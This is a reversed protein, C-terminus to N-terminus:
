QSRRGDIDEGCVATGPPATLRVHGAGAGCGAQAASYWSVIRTGTSDDVWLVYWTAAPVANWVYTPTPNFISGSPSLLTAGGPLTGPSVTFPMGDSWPGYGSENWTQIWWQAAGRALATAPTVSCTGNGSPCGAQDATYWTKIKGTTTTSDDVWLFYWTAGPVANWSYTPTATAINGNPSILTAKGPLVGAFVSFNM